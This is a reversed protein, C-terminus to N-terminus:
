ISQEDLLTNFDTQCTACLPLIPCDVGRFRKPEVNGAPEESFASIHLILYPDSDGDISAGCKFCPFVDDQADPALDQQTKVQKVLHAVNEGALAKDRIADVLGLLSSKRAHRARHRPSFTRM